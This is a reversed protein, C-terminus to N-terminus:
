SRLEAAAGVIVQSKNQQAVQKIREIEALSCEGGFEHVAYAVGADAFTRKWTDALLRIPSRGGVILAPGNLGLGAMEAGLMATANKGQTYRPPSCFVSLM